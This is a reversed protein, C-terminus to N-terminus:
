TVTMHESKDVTCCRSIRGRVMSARYDTGYNPWSRIHLAKYDPIKERAVQHQGVDLTKFM